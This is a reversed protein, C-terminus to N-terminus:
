SSRRIPFISLEVGQRRCEDALRALRMRSFSFLSEADILRSNNGMILVAREPRDPVWSPDGGMEEVIEKLRSRATADDLLLQASVGAQAFLHSAGTSRSIMKVHIFAGDPTLVDCSEFGRPSLRCQILRRDLCVGGLHEALRLNYAPEDMDIPWSPIDAFPRPAAFVTELRGTLLSDLGDDVLYWRGDHMCYRHNEHSTEFSLWQRAPLLSSIPDDEDTFAQVRMRDLRALRDTAALPRVRNLLATLETGREPPRRTPLGTILFYSLPAAIDAFETPWALGLHIADEEGLAKDLASDLIGKIPDTSKLARLQEITALEPIPDRALLVEIADLDAILKAPERALPINAADAGRIEVHDGSVGALVGDMMAPAVIRSILDGLESAGFGGITDGGPISTRAVFARSDLRSHTISKLRDPDACRAALRRGLDPVMKTSEILHFGMGFCIAWILGSTAQATPLLLVGAATTHGLSDALDSGGVWEDVTSAWKAHASEVSGGIFFGERGGVDVQEIAFGDRDLYGARLVDHPDLAGAVQYISVRTYPNPRRPV